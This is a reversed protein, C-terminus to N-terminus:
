AFQGVAGAEGAPRSVLPVAQQCVEIGVLLHDQNPFTFVNHAAGADPQCFPRKLSRRVKIKKQQDPELATPPYFARQQRFAPETKSRM